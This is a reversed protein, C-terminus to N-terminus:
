KIGGYTGFYSEFDKRCQEGNAFDPCNRCESVPEDNMRDYWGRCYIQPEGNIFFETTPRGRGKEYSCKTHVM